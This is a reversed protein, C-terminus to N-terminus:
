YQLGRRAFVKERVHRFAGQLIFPKQGELAARAVEPFLVKEEFVIQRCVPFFAKRGDSFKLLERRLDLGPIVVCM